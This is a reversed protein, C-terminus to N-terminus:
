RIDTARSLVEAMLPVDALEVAQRRALPGSALGKECVIHSPRWDSLREGDLRFVVDFLERGTGPAEAYGVYVSYGATRHVSLIAPIQGLGFTAMVRHANPVAVVGPQGMPPRAALIRQSIEPLRLFETVQVLSPSPEDARILAFLALNAALNEPRLASPHDVTWRHEDAVWGLEVPDCRLRQEGPVQIDVWQFDPTTAEALAFLALNVLPRSPGYVLVSTPGQRLREPLASAADPGPTRPPAPRRRPPVKRSFTPAPDSGGPAAASRVPTTPGGVRYPAGSAPDASM